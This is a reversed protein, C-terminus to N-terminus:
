DEVSFEARWIAFPLDAPDIRVRRRGTQWVDTQGRMLDTMTVAQHDALGLLSPYVDIEAEQPARPDFSVVVVLLNGDAASRKVYCLLMPNACEIFRVDLHSHLAPNTRRIHNLRRIEAVINGPAQLDWQRLQYKESDLYEERGNLSRAECLEFGNYVGWLGSLTAALAARLLFGARGSTQLFLPNIDPTNVFLHPRFFASPATTALETLYAQMEWATDRWTFYTYSQSFGIKALRYMMKPRTFAEALFMTDPHRSRIDGIMWEWFPLPKTHPNDVRFIRVGENVWFQVIDRLALWLDPMASQAYFAVNVIDEYKKPPNEAYRISGDPRWTFWGPHQRLWPHDPACQIAFDLAIELGQSAAAAVLRRFDDLTGLEPHVADHGGEASGIAYPSGPDGPQTKLVNNPGKRNTQGIPHIPPFYLVDFGMDRVSPLMRIVDDFTGHKGEVSSQSRPFIEYWSAFGAAQREADVPIETGHRLLFPRPDNAGIMAATEASRLHELREGSPLAQLMKELAGLARSGTQRAFAAILAMGEEIEVALDLAAAHKKEIEYQFNGFLDAWAQVTYLHRGLRELPFSATWVDNVLPRLPVENWEATDAARWLLSGALKEHGDCILDVTVVVDTGVTQKVPFRGGDVAPQLAEIAIRPASTAVPTGPRLIAAPRSVGVLRVEGAALSQATGAEPMAGALRPMLPALDVISNADLLSNVLILHSKVGPRALVAVKANPVSVIEAHGQTSLGHHRQNAALVAEALWPEKAHDQPMTMLWARGFVAAFAIARRLAAPRDAGPAFPLAPMALLPAVASLRRSEEELWDARFDWAWSSSAVFDFGCGALPRLAGAPAGVAWALFQTEPQLVRSSTILRQWFGPSVKDAADCRFGEIGAEIWAAVREQWWAEAALGPQLTAAFRNAPLTRPDPLAATPDFSQYFGGEGALASERAVRDVVLDLMVSLGHESAERVVRKLFADADGSGLRVDLRRHDAVLFVDGSRGALFPPALLVHTFGLAAVAALDLKFTDAQGARVLNTYCIATGRGVMM